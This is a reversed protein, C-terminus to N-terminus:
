RPKTVSWTWHRDSSMTVTEPGCGLAGVLSRVEEVTFAARLSDAFLQRARAPAGEAYRNVLGALTPEDAPRALDRFFIRGGPQTVRWAEQLAPLPDALHHVLSNSVVLPYIGDHYWLAQARVWDLRVRETLGERVLHKRALELMPASADAAIVIRGPLRKALLIAILGNGSGLDLVPGLPEGRALADDTFRQNVETHDMADYAMAEEPGDMVEPEPVRALMRMLM